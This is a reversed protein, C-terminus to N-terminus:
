PCPQGTMWLFNCELKIFMPENQVFFLTHDMGRASWVPGRTAGGEHCGLLNAAGGPSRLGHKEFFLPPNTTLCFFFLYFFPFLYKAMVM